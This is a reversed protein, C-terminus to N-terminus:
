RKTYEMIVYPTYNSRNSGTRIHVTTANASILVATYNDNPNSHPILIFTSGDTAMGKLKVLTKINSVNHNVFKNTNNPLTGFDIVKRYIPSGDIWSGCITETESYLM